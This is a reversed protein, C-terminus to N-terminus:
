QNAKVTIGLTKILSAPNAAGAALILMSTKTPPTVALELNGPKDLFAEVPPAVLDVIAPIGVQGLSMRVMPKLSSAFQEKSVGSQNAFVELARDVLGADDYRLTFGSISLAQAMELVTVMARAEAEESNAPEAATAASLASIKELLPLTFGSIDFTSNIQGVDAFDILFQDMVMRGDALTWQATQKVEGSITTLGLGEIIAAASPDEDKLPTLDAKINGVAFISDVTTLADDNDFGFKYEAILSDYSLVTAGKNVFTLPGTSISGFSQVVHEATIEGPPPLWIDSARIDKLTFVSESKKSGETIVVDPVSVSQITFNGGEGEVVGSFTFTQDFVVPDEGPIHMTAGDVTITDGSVTAPGFDIKNGSYEMVASFRELVAEAEFALAPQAIILATLSTALLVRPTKITGLM